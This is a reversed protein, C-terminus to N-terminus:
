LGSGFFRLRGADNIEGSLLCHHDCCSTARLLRAGQPQRACHSGPPQPSIQLRRRADRWRRPKSRERGTATTRGLESEQTVTPAARCASGAPPEHQPPRRKAGVGSRHEGQLRAGVESRESRESREFLRPSTLQPHASRAGVELSRPDFGCFDGGAPLAQRAEVWQSGACCFGPTVRRKTPVDLAAPVRVKLDASKRKWRLCGLGWRAGGAAGRWRVYLPCESPLLPGFASSQGGADWADHREWATLLM